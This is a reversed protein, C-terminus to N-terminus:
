ADQSVPRHSEQPPVIVRLITESSAPQASTTLQTAADCAAVAPSAAFALSAGCLWAALAGCLARSHANNM